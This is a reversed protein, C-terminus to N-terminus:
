SKGKKKRMLREKVGVLEDFAEKNAINNADSMKVEPLYKVGIGRKISSIAEKMIQVLKQTEEEVNIGTREKGDTYKSVTVVIYTFFREIKNISDEDLYLTNKDVWEKAEEYEKLAVKVGGDGMLRAPRIVTLLRMCRYYAGQHADLRKEFIMDKYKDEKERWIRFEHIAVGVVVGILGMVAPFWDM